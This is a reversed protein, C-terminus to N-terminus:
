PPELLEHSLGAHVRFVTGFRDRRPFPGPETESLWATQPDTGNETGISLPVNPVNGM